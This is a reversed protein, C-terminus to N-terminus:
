GDHAKDNISPRNGASSLKGEKDLPSMPLTGGARASNMKATDKVPSMQSRKSIQSSSHASPDPCIIQNSAGSKHLAAEDVMALGDDEDILDGTVPIGQADVLTTPIRSRQEAKSGRGPLSSASM